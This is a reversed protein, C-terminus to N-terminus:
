LYKFFCKDNPCSGNFRVRMSQNGKESLRIGPSDRSDHSIGLSDNDNSHVIMTESPESTQSTESSEGTQSTESPEGTKSTKRM